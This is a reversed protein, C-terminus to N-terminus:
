PEAGAASYVRIEVGGLDGFRVIRRLRLRADLWAVECRELADPLDPGRVYFLLRSGTLLSEFLETSVTAPCPRADDSPLPIEYPLSHWRVPAEWEAIMHYWAPTAYADVVVGDQASVHRELWRVAQALAPRGGGFAPDERGALPLAVAPFLWGVSVLLLCFWASRRPLAFDGQWGLYLCGVLGTLMGGALIPVAWAWWVGGRILRLWLVDWQDGRLMAVLQPFAPYFVVRWAASPDYPDLGAAEWMGYPVHWPVLTAPLQIVAGALGLCALAVRGRGTELLRDVPGSALVMLLPVVPLMFRPGWGFTGAWRERYFLAQGVALFLTFAVASVTFPRSRRWELYAGPLALLLVPSFLFLSRSPSLFPGLVWSLVNVQLGELFHGALFRYYDLSYRALPGQGLNLAVLALGLGLAISVLVWERGSHRQGLLLLGGVMMAPLSALATNKFLAGGVVGVLVLAWAIKHLGGVQGRSLWAWGLFAVAMWFMAGVDRYFTSAYPWLLTGTGLLLGSLLSARVSRGLLLMVIMSVGVTAATLYLNILFWGAGGGLGLSTLARYVGAGVVALGPEVETAQDGWVAEQRVRANGFVQPHELQGWLALSQSRAALIHEDDVRFRSPSTLAYLCSLFAPVLALALAKRQGPSLM